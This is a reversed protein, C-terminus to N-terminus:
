WRWWQWWKQSFNLYFSTGFIHSQSYIYIDEFDQFHLWDFAVYYTCTVIYSKLNESHHSHLIADESINRRTSRTLVSMKSSGLAEKM